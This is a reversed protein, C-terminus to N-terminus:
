SGVISKATEIIAKRSFETNKLYQHINQLEKKIPLNSTNRYIATIRDSLEKVSAGVEGMASELAQAYGQQQQQLVQQDAGVKEIQDSLVDLEYAEKVLGSSELIGAIKDLRETISTSM